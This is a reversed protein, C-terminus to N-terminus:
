PRVVQLTVPLIVHDPGSLEPPIVGSDILPLRRGSEASYLGVRIRYEGPPLDAPLPLPVRDTVVQGADLINTPLGGPWHDAQLVIEDDENLVHVFVNYVEGFQDVKEWYLTMEPSQGPEGSLADPGVGLLTLPGFRTDTLIPVDEPLEYVRDINNVQLEALPHPSGAPEGDSLLPSVFLEYRGAPLDPPLPVRYKEQITEGTRWLGTDYRSLPETNLIIDEAGDVARLSWAVQL